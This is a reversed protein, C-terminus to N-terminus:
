VVKKSYYITIDEFSDQQKITIENRHMLELVALFIVAAEMKSRAKKFLEFFSLPPGKKAERLVFFMKEKVSFYVNTNERFDSIRWASNYDILIMRRYRDDGGENQPMLLLNDPSVDLHLFGSRHFVDLADIIGLMCALIGSLSSTIKGGKVASELTEGNSNGLVTYLTGNKEYSNINVGTM